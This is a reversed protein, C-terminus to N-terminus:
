FQQTSLLQHLLPRKHVSGKFNGTLWQDKGQHVPGTTGAASTMRTGARSCLLHKRVLASGVAEKGPRRRQGRTPGKMQRDLGWPQGEGWAPLLRGSSDCSSSVQSGCLAAEKWPKSAEGQHRDQRGSGGPPETTEPPITRGRLKHACSTHVRAM